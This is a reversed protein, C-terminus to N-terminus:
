LNDSSIGKETWNMKITVSKNKLLKQMSQLCIANKLTQLSFVAFSKKSVKPDIVHLFFTKAFDAFDNDM